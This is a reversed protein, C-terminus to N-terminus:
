IEVFNKILKKINIRLNILFYSRYRTLAYLGVGELSSDAKQGQCPFFAYVRVAFSIDMQEGGKQRNVRM